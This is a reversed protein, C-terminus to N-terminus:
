PLPCARNAQYTRRLASMSSHRSWDRVAKNDKIQGSGTNIRDAQNLAISFPKSSCGGADDPEIGM